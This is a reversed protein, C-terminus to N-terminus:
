TITLKVVSLFNLGDPFQKPTAVEFGLQTGCLEQIKEVCELAVM